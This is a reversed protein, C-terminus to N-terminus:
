FGIVVGGYFFAKGSRAKYIPALSVQFGLGPSFTFRGFSVDTDATLAVHSVDTSGSCLYGSDVGVTAGLLFSQGSIPVERSLTGSVFLGTYMDLDYVAYIEPTVPLGEFAVSGFVENAPNLLIKSGSPEPFVYFIYGAGFSVNGVTEDYSAIIEAENLYVKNGVDASKSDVNAWLSVTLSRYSAYVEPQFVLGDSLADGRSVYPGGVYLSTGFEVQAMATPVTALLILLM